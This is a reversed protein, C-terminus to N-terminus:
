HKQQPLLSGRDTREKKGPQAEKEKLETRGREAKYIGPDKVQLDPFGGMTPASKKRGKRDEKSLSGAAKILGGSVDHGRSRHWHFSSPFCGTEM